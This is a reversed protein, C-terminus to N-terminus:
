PRFCVGHSMRGLDVSLLTYHTCGSFHTNYCFFIQRIFIDLCSWHCMSNSKSYVDIFKDISDNKNANTSKEGDVFEAQSFRIVLNREDGSQRWVTTETMLSRNSILSQIFLLFRKRSVSSPVFQRISPETSCEGLTISLIKMIEACASHRKSIAILVFPSKLNRLFKGDLTCLFGDNSVLASCHRLNIKFKSCNIYRAETQSWEM